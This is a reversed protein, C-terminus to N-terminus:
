EASLLIVMPEIGSDPTIAGTTDPPNGSVCPNAATGWHTGVANAYAEGVPASIAVDVYSGAGSSSCHCQRYPTGATVTFASLGSITINENSTTYAATAERIQSSGDANYYALGMTGAGSTTGTRFFMTTADTIGVPPVFDFCRLVNATGVTESGTTQPLGAIPTFVFTTSQAAWASGRALCAILAGALFLHRRM